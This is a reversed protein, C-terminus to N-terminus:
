RVRRRTMSRELDKVSDIQAQLADSRQKEAALEKELGHVRDDLAQQRALSTSLLEALDRLDAPAGAHGAGLLQLASATDHFPTGPQSLLMALKIRDVGSGSQAFHRNVSDYERALGQAPLAGLCRQYRLLEGQGLVQDPPPPCQVSPAAQHVPEPACGALLNLALLLSILKRHASKM